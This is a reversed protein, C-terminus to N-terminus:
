LDSHGGEKKKKDEQRAFGGRDGGSGQVRVVVGRCEIWEPCVLVSINLENGSARPVSM